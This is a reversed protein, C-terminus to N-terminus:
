VHVVPDIHGVIAITGGTQLEWVQVTTHQSGGTDHGDSVIVNQHDYVVKFDPNSTLFRIVMNQATADFMPYAVAVVSDPVSPVVAQAVASVSASVLSILSNEQAVPMTSPAFAHHLIQDISFAGLSDRDALMGDQTAPVKAPLATPADPLYSLLSPSSTTAQTFAADAQALKADDSVQMSEGGAIKERDGSADLQVKNAAHDDKSSGVDSHRTLIPINGRADDEGDDLVPAKTEALHDSQIKERASGDDWRWGFGSDDLPLVSARTPGSQHESSEVSALL